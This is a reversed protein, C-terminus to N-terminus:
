LEMPHPEMVYKHSKVNSSSSKPVVACCLRMNEITQFTPFCFSNVFHSNSILFYQNSLTPFISHSSLFYQISLSSINFLFLPFISHFSLFSPSVEWTLHQKNVRARATTVSAKHLGVIGGSGIIGWASEWRTM